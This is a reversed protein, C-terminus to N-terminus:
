TADSVTLMVPQHDSANTVTDVRVDHVYQSVAGAVFFFDRCHPGQPWQVKDHVGCTPDHARGAHCIQWADRFSAPADALPALMAAYERSDVEINFDGCVVCSEPRSLLQYSGHANYDPPNHVNAAAQQHLERLREIQALRQRTSHFELHTNMVRLPGFGAAVTTETVQRPMQRVGAHPPQPLPHHFVSLVPLRTLTANGYQWRPVSGASSAEIAIGFIVEYGPFVGALEAVQDVAEDAGFLCLQRSVEQLCIVDPTGMNFIVDAIRQLSVIDDTGKGNQINWSAIVTM